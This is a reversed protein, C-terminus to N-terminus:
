LVRGFVPYRPARLAAQLAKKEARLAKVRMRAGRWGSVPVGPAASVRVPVTGSQHQGCGCECPVLALSFTTTSLERAHATAECLEACVANLREHVVRRQAHTKPAEVRRALHEHMM